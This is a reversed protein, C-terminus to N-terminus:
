LTAFDDAAIIEIRNRGRQKAQLLTKDARAFLQNFSENPQQECIGFSATVQQDIVKIQLKEISQRLRECLLAAEMANTEPLLLMLEDGGFRGLLDQQRLQTQLKRCVQQLVQDGVQHGLVDNVRKFHDLDLVTLCLKTNRRGARGMVLEAQEIFAQRSLIGTLPDITLSQKLQQNTAHLLPVASGYLMSASIMAITFQYVAAYDTVQLVRMLVVIALSILALGSFSRWVSETYVLWMAPLILFFILFTIELQRIQQALLMSCCIAILALSLKFAYDRWKGPIAPVLRGIRVVSQAGNLKDLLLFLLPTLSLIAVLDGLWWGLWIASRESDSLLGAWQLSWVGSLAAALAAVAALILFSVVIGTYRLHQRIVLTRLGLAGCLYSLSHALSPYLAQLYPVSDAPHYLEIHRLSILVCAIFIAPLARWGFLTLAAFSLAAPPYWLSAHPSYALIDAAEYLLIWTLIITLQLLFARANPAIVTVPM